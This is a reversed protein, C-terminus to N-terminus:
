FNKKEKLYDKKNIHIFLSQAIQETEKNKTYPM